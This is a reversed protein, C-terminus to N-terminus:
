TNDAHKLFAITGNKEKPHLLILLFKSAIKISEQYKRVVAGIKKCLNKLINEFHVSSPM